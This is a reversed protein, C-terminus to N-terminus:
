MCGLNLSMATTIAAAHDRRQRGRWARERGKRPTVAPDRELRLRRVAHLKERHASVTVVYALDRMDVRALAGVRRARAAGVPRGVAARERKRDVVTLDAQNCRPSAPDRNDRRRGFGPRRSSRPRGTM